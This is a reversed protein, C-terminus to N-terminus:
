DNEELAREQVAQLIDEAYEDLKLCEWSVTQEFDEQISEALAEIIENLKMEKFDDLYITFAQMRDDGGVYGDSIGYTIEMEEKM